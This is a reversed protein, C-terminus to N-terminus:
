KIGYFKRLSPAINQVGATCYCARCVKNEACKYLFKFFHIFVGM